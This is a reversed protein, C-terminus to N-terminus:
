LSNEVKNIYNIHKQAMTEITYDKIIELSRLSMLKRIEPNEILYEIKYRLDSLESNVIYGNGKVLELGAICKTTTIVPLGRSMAENIVLGWTDSETPHVFIDSADYYDLLEEKNLFNVIKVNGLQNELILDEYNEREPGEGVIILQHSLDFYKWIKILEQYRKLKIFRGVAIIVVDGKIGLRSRIYNKKELTNPATIVDKDFISSYPYKIIRKSDAGYTILYDDALKTTSFYQYANAIIYKKFKEKFGKGDKPFSGESEIIYKIKRIRFYQISLIGTLTLPNTIFIYDYNNSVLHFLISPSFSQDFSYNVGRLVIGRFSIFRYNSWRDGRETSKSREFIATLNCYKGLENLYDVMYPSPINCLYLVKKFQM